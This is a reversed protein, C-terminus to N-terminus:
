AAQPWSRLARAVPDAAMHRELLTRDGYVLALAVLTEEPVPLRDTEYRRLTSATIGVTRAIARADREGRDRRLHQGLTLSLRGTPRPM